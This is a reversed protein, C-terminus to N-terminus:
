FFSTIQELADESDWEFPGQLRGIERTQRDILLTTPLGIFALALQVRLPESWYLPLNVIGIEDYFRRGRDIGADDICLPLVAFDAGGMRAQLRDLTPMEERCPPCWTAWINLLIVRGAFDELQRTTGAEDLISPSLLPQQTGKRRRFPPRAEVSGALFPTAFAGLVARRGIIIPM